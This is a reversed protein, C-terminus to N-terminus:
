YSHLFVLKLTFGGIHTYFCLDECGNTAYFSDLQRQQAQAHAAPTWLGSKISGSVSGEQILQEALGALLAPWHSVDQLYADVHADAGCSCWQGWCFVITCSLRCLMMLLPQCTQCQRLQYGCIYWAKGHPYAHM